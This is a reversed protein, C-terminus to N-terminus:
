SSILEKEKLYIRAFVVELSTTYKEMNMIANEIKTNFYNYPFLTFIAIALGTATTILAQAIGATVSAPEQIGQTGLIEFSMIIGLVTGLIGLLPAATIITDLIGMYKKMKKIEDHAAAEMAKEMSYERHLIGSVLIRLIYNKTGQTKNKIKDWKSDRALDLVEFIIDQHSNIKIFIWFLFREIIIALSILSCIILPLMALGGNKVIEIM